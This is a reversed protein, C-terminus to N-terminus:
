LHPANIFLLRLKVAEQRIRGMRRLIGRPIHDGVPIARQVLVLHPLPHVHVDEVTGPLVDVDHGRIQNQVSLHLSSQFERRLPAHIHRQNQRTNRVLGRGIGQRHCM